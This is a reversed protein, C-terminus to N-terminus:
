TRRSRHYMAIVLFSLFSVGIITPGTPIDYRFAIYIGSLVSFCGIICSNIVMNFPSRSISLACAAPLILMATILLIGVIKFSITVFLALVLSFSLKLKQVDIGEAKLLEPCASMYVLKSWNKWVWFLIIFSSSVLYIIDQNNVTLIDGFLFGMLDINIKEVSAIIIALSLASYALIGLTTDNSYKGENRSFFVAFAIAVVGIALTLNVNLMVGLTVGLLSSHSLADGFYSMNNWIVFPGLIGAILAVFIGGTFASAVFIDIM